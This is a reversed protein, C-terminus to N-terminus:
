ALLRSARGKAGEFTNPTLAVSSGSRKGRAYGDRNFGGERGSGAKQTKGKLAAEVAVINQEIRVVANSGAAVAAKKTKNHQEWIRNALATSYGAFWSDKWDKMWKRWAPLCFDEWDRLTHVYLFKQTPREQEQCVEELHIGLKVFYLFLIKCIERDSTRGVFYFQNGSYHRLKSYRSHWGGELVTKCGNAEAITRALRVQWSKRSGFEFDNKGVHLWEIPEDAEQEDFEVDSMGLKHQSLMQQIKTAFAEAENLSGIARASREHEILKRLLDLTKESVSM